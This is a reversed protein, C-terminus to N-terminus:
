AWWFYGFPICNHCIKGQVKLYFCWHCPKKIIKVSYAPAAAAAFVITVIIIAILDGYWELLKLKKAKLSSSSSSLLIFFSVGLFLLWVSNWTNMNKFFCTHLDNSFSWIQIVNFTDYIVRAKKGSLDEIIKYMWRTWLNERPRQTM